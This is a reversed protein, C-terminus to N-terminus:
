PLNRGTFEKLISNLWELEAKLHYETHSFIAQATKPVGPLSLQQEKHASLYKLSEKLILIRKQIYGIIEEDPLEGPFALAVDLPYYEREIKQWCEKLSSIFEQRGKETIQYISRSPRNGVREEIKIEVLGEEKLKGLAFYISGFAISTWDGMHEEIIQKLEYGHLPKERLLGLIVMRTM